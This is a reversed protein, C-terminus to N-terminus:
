VLSLTLVANVTFSHRRRGGLEDIGLPVISGLRSFNHLLYFVGSEVEVETRKQEDMALAIANAKTWTSAYDKGRVRIQIGPHDIQEGTSQIRGDMRGVVDFVGIAEDPEDPMFSIFVPWTGSVDAVGLGLDILLQYIVESPASM